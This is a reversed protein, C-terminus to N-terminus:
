DLNPDDALVNGTTNEPDYLPDADSVSDAWLNGDAWLNSDAWLNGDAWLNSDAWLNRDAWLNSDAWLNRDAWLVESGDAASGAPSWLNGDAWMGHAAWGTGWLISTDEVFYGENVEDVMLRPSLAEGSVVGTDNLAAEIDLVGAGADIPNASIKRASRMLRAKVTAPNLTPDKDLMLAAAGAVLPTAMSTGSLELYANSCTAEINEDLNPDNEAEYDVCGDDILRDPMDDRLKALAPIAAVIRNGPAVLDPKMVFDGISPGRSSFSSIYDDDLHETGSDTLSGVTVIKRSNGPSKITLAGGTGLNGAAAVVVVGQDWLAEVAHVLPDTENSESIGKGLSLNAVRVDFHHGYQLLWDLAAMVNSMSGNGHGDLVQLSLISVNTASGKFDDASANGSGAIIGAVHTGHGFEDVRPGDNYAVVQGDVVTPIPYAGNLFSYQMVNGALDGHSAVGTDLVAVAVGSGSYVANASGATPLNATRRSSSAKGGIEERIIKKAAKKAAKEADTLATSTIQEDLSLRDVNAEIALEDIAWAPLRITQVDLVNYARVVEGGLERVREADFLEPHDDYSIVLEVPESGGAMALAAVPGSMKARAATLTVDEDDDRPVEDATEPSARMSMTTDASQWAPDHGDTALLETDFSPGGSYARGKDRGAVAEIMASRADTVQAPGADGETSTALHLGGSLGFIAAFALSVKQTSRKM